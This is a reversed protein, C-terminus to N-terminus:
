KETDALEHMKVCVCVCVCLCFLFCVLLAYSYHWWILEIRPAPSCSLYLLFAICLFVSLFKADSSRVVYIQVERDKYRHIM